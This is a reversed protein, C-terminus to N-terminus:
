DNSEAASKFKIVPRSSQSRKNVSSKFRSSELEIKIPKKKTRFQNRRPPLDDNKKSISASISKIKPPGIVWDYQYDYICGLKELSDRFMKRYKAYNPEDQFKLARVEKLYDAFESPFGDFLLEPTIKAKVSVIQSYKAQLSNAVVNMWPLSGRLLYAWVYALAELDDRRSPGIGRLSSISAYRATGAFSNHESYPIHNNTKPDRYFMALGFDILFIQNSTDNVGMMFNDPKIDRHILNCCHLFQVSSIMQDALMLVTKVSLKGGCEIRASELSKGLFDIVMACTKIEIGFYYLKCVNVGGSLISYIKSEASLQPVQTKLQEIKIAVGKGTKRDEGYYIEGFSGAGIKKILAYRGGFVRDTM